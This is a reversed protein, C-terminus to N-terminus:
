LLWNLTIIILFDLLATIGQSSIVRFYWFYRVILTM